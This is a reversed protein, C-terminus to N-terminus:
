CTGKNLSDSKYSPSDYSDEVVADCVFAKSNMGNSRFSDDSASIMSPDIDTEVV